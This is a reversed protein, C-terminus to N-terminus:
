QDPFSLTAAQALANKLSDFSKTQEENWPFKAGSNIYEHLPRAIGAFDKVFRRYYSCLGVFSRTLTLREQASKTGDDPRPFESVARVKDPDPSIGARSVVHGLAHLVTKAFACKTLKVKLDAQYLCGLVVRLRTAHEEITNSFVIIDDLYVMCFLWRYGALVTDMMRQFTAPASCLGFPMVKFQYLGDATIFATKPKDEPRIPVQWYGSELDMISFYSSGELRALAEEIRPLPYVDKTTISNLRRYDVCFRWSGDKKRRSVGSPFGM